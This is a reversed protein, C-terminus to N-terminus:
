RSVVRGPRFGTNHDRSDPTFATRDASRAYRTAALAAGGRILRMTTNGALREADGAQWPVKYLHDVDRCWEFINGAMDHFGFPNPLFTGVPAHGDWGDDGLSLEEASPKRNHRRALAIDACNAYGRLSEPLEGTFFPTTTGGRAAYEWQASTPLMLGLRQMLADCEYWTVAEVPHRLDIPESGEYQVGAAGVSPNAGSLRLWQGQTMEYKSLFFPALEVEHVPQDYGFAGPDVHPEGLPREESPPEAGLRTRGGPLLVFVLGTEEAVVLRGTAPDREAIAGSSLHAFEFLGSGPDPGLPVLGLQPALALGRYDPYADEDAVDDITEAWADDHEDISRERLTNAEEHLARM